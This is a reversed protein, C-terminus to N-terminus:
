RCRTNGKYGLLEHFLNSRTFSDNWHLESGERVRGRWRMNNDTYNGYHDPKKFTPSTQEKNSLLLRVRTRARIFFGDGPERARFSTLSSYSIITVVRVAVPRPNFNFQTETSFSACFANDAPRFHITTNNCSWDNCRIEFGIYLKASEWSINKM